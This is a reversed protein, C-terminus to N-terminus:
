RWVVEGSRIGNDDNRIKFRIKSVASPEPLEVAGWALSDSTHFFTLM